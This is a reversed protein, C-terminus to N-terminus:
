HFVGDLYSAIQVVLMEHFAERDFGEPDQAVIGVDNKIADPFPTIFSFHGANEIIHYSLMEKNKVNQAIVESQYPEVLERDKEARLLLTPIDVADLAGKSKFLVGVPAMLVLAKVRADRQNEIEVPMLQHDKVVGCFPANLQPKSECLEIIHRTNAVGGAVALATYGGASHGIVAVKDVAISPALVPNSLLSDIASRIHQPRNKWNNVSGQASNNKYNDEPHLPMAVIFGQKVLAFAISRHGLNSGSSGHSIIVLPFDGKAIAGGIALEMRFPGFKVPEAPTHTPYVVAMPFHTSTEKSTVEVKRFGVSFEDSALTPLASSLLIAIFV